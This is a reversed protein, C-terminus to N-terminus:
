GENDPSMGQILRHYNNIEAELKMKVYLLNKNIEVQREVQSRVERLEAELDVIMKNLPAQHQQYEHKTNLLGEELNRIQFRPFPSQKQSKEKLNFTERMDPQMNVPYHCSLLLTILAQGHTHTHTDVMAQVSQIRIELARKQKLLEKLEKKGSLLAENNQAEVM